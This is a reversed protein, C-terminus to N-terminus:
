EDCFNRALYLFLLREDPFIDNEGLRIADKSGGIVENRSLGYNAEGPSKVRRVVSKRIIPIVLKLGRSMRQDACQRVM